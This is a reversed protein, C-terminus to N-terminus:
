KRPLTTAAITVMVQMMNHLELIDKAKYEVNFADIRRTGPIISAEDAMGSNAFRITLKLPKPLVFPKFVNLNEFAHRAAEKIRHQAEEPHISEAAYRTIGRKVAVTEVRGLFRKAEQVTKDDGCVLVVPTKYYGALLANIGTEGFIRDNIRIENVVVGYMTHDIVAGQTGMRSHYGVFVAGDFGKEIGQVMSLPKHHGSILTAKPNLEDIIINYMDGHSDNVLIENAECELAAEIVANVEGTLWKRAKDYDKGPYMTQDGEVVGAVGEMDCSIYIKM